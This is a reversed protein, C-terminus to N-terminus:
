EPLVPSAEEISPSDVTISHEISEFFDTAEAAIETGHENRAPSEMDSMNLLPPLHITYLLKLRQAAEVTSTLGLATVLERFNLFGDHNKDMLKLCLFNLFYM